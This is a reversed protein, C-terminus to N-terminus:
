VDFGCRNGYFFNLAKWITRQWVDDGIRFPRTHTGGARIIYSGAETVESFDLERFEGLRTGVTAVPKTLVVAGLASDNVRVLQFEAAALDSSLASKSTGTQYGTHSFAIRGPAIDWGTHHDPDVRQLEIRGIEFAVSDGPAALMKNVWYGFEIMTVRDRALPDIEWVIHQWVGDELTVYHIGERYYADPVKVAGDNHLVIQLPLMPFGSVEARIWMSLRNYDSWDEGDFARRLNVSSLRNRTPAPSDTFMQMDVRLVRMGDMRPQPPFTLTGTGTFRWNDPQTMDDLTRRAHVTKNLWGYEASNEFEIPLLERPAQATALAPVLICLALASILSRRM